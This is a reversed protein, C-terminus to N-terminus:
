YNLISDINTKPMFVSTTSVIAISSVPVSTTSTSQSISNVHARLFMLDKSNVHVTTSQPM